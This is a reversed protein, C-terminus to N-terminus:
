AGPEWRPHRVAFRASPWPHLIAEKRQRAAERVRDLGPSVSVRSPTRHTRPRGMNGETRGRPEVSETELRGSNNAPKEAVIPLDSKEQESMM